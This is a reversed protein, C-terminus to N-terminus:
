LTITFNVNQCSVTLYSGKFVFFKGRICFNIKAGKSQFSLVIFTVSRKNLGFHLSVKISASFPEHIESLTGVCVIRVWTYKSRSSELTGDKGTTGM